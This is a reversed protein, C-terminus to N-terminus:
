KSFLAKIRDYDPTAQKREEDFQIKNHFDRDIKKLTWDKTDQLSSDRGFAWTAFVYFDTQLHALADATSLIRGEVSAPREDGYCSHYRIADDVVLQIDQKSYGAEEMLERALRLSVDEHEPDSRKMKIDAIDHLVAAVRALEENAGYKKALGAAYDAVVFVHHNAFWDVWKDRTANNERYLDKVRQELKHLKDM